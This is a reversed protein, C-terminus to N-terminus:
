NRNRHPTSPLPVLKSNSQGGCLFVEGFLAHLEASGESSNFVIAQEQSTAPTPPLSQRWTGNADASSEFTKGAFTTTVTVGPSAFGWM